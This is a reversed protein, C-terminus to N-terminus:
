SSSRRRVVVVVELDLAFGFVFVFVFVFLTCFSLSMCWAGHDFVEASGVSGVEEESPM